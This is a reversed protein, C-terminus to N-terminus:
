TNKRIKKNTQKNEYEVKRDQWGLNAWRFRYFPCYRDKCHKIEAKDNGTCYECFSNM